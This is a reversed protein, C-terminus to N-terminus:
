GRFARHQPGYSRRQPRDALAERAAKEYLRGLREFYLGDDATITRAHQGDVDDWTATFTDGNMYVICNRAHCSVGIGTHRLQGYRVRYGNM